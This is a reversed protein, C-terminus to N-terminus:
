YGKVPDVINYAKGGARVREANAICLDVSADFYGEFDASVHPTVIVRPHTFLAHGDPLPEPDTVDLAAGALGGPADLAALIDASRVLDGRGVNLFIAGAPLTKLHEETLLWQTAPTSPLSAILIQSKSLFDKFSAADNTSYYAEPIVGEEDGTGPLVYGDDVKRTGSSNAAIIKVGYAQLLRATERAIHGYGLLGATKGRLVPSGNKFYTEYKPDTLKERRAWRAETRAAVIQAPLNTYLNVIQSVIWLPISLAHIGSASCVKINEKAEAPKLAPVALALNAGASTLQVLRTSPIDDYTIWDPIGLWRCFWMEVDTLVDRPVDNGPYYHVTQFAARLRAVSEDSLPVTVALTQFAPATM